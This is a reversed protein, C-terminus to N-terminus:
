IYSWCIWSNIFIAKCSAMSGNSCFTSCHYCANTVAFFSLSMRPCQLYMDLTYVLNLHRNSGVAKRTLTCIFCWLYTSPSHLALSLSNFTWTWTGIQWSSQMRLLSAKAWCPDPRVGYIVIYFCTFVIIWCLRADVCDVCVRKGLVLTGVSASFCQLLM